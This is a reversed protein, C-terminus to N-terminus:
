SWVEFFILNLLMRMSDFYKSMFNNYEYFGRPKTEEFIKTFKAIWLTEILEHAKFSFGNGLHERFKEPKMLLIAYDDAAKTM